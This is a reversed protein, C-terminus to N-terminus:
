LKYITKKPHISTKPLISSYFFLSTDILHKIEKALGRPRLLTRYAFLQMNISHQLSKSSFTPGKYYLLHFLM